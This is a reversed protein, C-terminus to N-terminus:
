QATEYEYIYCTIGWSNPSDVWQGNGALWVYDETGDQDNPEGALWNTYTLKERNVWKWGGSPEKGKQYLGIWCSSGAAAATVLAQEAESTITALYWGAGEAAQKAYQWPMASSNFRGYHHETPTAPRGFQPDLQSSAPGSTDACAPLLLALGLAPILRRVM